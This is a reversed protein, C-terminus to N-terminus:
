AIMAAEKLMAFEDPNRAYHMQYFHRFALHMSFDTVGKLRDRVNKIVYFFCILYSAEMTSVVVRRFANYQADEADAMFYKMQFRHGVVALFQDSIATLAALYQTETRQSVIFLAVVHFSRTADSVGCVFVPFGHKTLKFTADMHFLFTDPDRDLKRLLAKTSFALVFPDADSGTELWEDQDLQYGFTFATSEDLDDSYQANSALSIVDDVVDSHFLIFKKCNYVFIQITKLSPVTLKTL